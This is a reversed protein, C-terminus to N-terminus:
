DEVQAAILISYARQSMQTTIAPSIGQATIMKPSKKM